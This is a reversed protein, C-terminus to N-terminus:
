PPSPDAESVIDFTKSRFYDALSQLQNNEFLEIFLPKLKKSRPGEMCKLLADLKAKDNPSELEFPPACLSQIVWQKVIEGFSSNLIMRVVDKAMKEWADSNKYSELYAQIAKSTLRRDEFISVSLNLGEESLYRALDINDPDRLWTTAIKRACLQLHRYRSFINHAESQRMASVFQEEGFKELTDLMTKLVMSNKKEDAAIQSLHINAQHKNLKHRTITQIRQDLQNLRKGGLQNLFHSKIMKYAAFKESTSGHFQEMFQHRIFAMLCQAACTGNLQVSSYDEANKSPPSVPLNQGLDEKFFAYIKDMESSPLKELLNFFRIWLDPNSLHEVSVGNICLHTQFHNTKSGQHHHTPVNGGTNYMTIRVKRDEMQEAALAMAHLPISIPILLPEGANKLAGLQEAIEFAVKARDFAQDNKLRHGWRSYNVIPLFLKELYDSVAPMFKAYAPEVKMAALTDQLARLAVLANIYPGNGWFIPQGELYSSSLWSKDDLFGFVPKDIWAFKDHVQSELLKIVLAHKQAQTALDILDTASFNQNHSEDLLQGVKIVQVPMEWTDPSAELDAFTELALAYQEHTNRTLQESYSQFEAAEPYSLDILTECVQKLALALNRRLLLSSESQLNAVLQSYRSLLSFISPELDVKHHQALFLQVSVGNKWPGLPVKNQLLLHDIIAADRTDLSNKALIDELIKRICTLESSSDGVQAGQLILEKILDPKKRQFSICAIYFITKNQSNPLNIEKIKSINAIFFALLKSDTESSFPDEGRLVFSFIRQWVLEGRQLKTNLDLGRELLILITVTNERSIAYDIPFFGKRTTAYADAGQDLLMQVLEKEDYHSVYHLPTVFNIDASNPNAGCTLCDETLGRLQPNTSKACLLILNEQTTENLVETQDISPICNQFRQLETSSYTKTPTPNKLEEILRIADWRTQLEKFKKLAIKQEEIPFDLAEKVIQTVEGFDKDRIAKFDSQSSIAHIKDFFATVTTHEKVSPSLLSCSAEIDKLFSIFPFCYNFNTHM